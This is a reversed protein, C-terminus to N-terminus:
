LLNFLKRDREETLYESLEKIVKERSAENESMKKLLFSGLLIKRRTEDKRQQEALKKKERAELAQKQAKLQQLREQQKAIKETLSELSVIWRGFPNKEIM